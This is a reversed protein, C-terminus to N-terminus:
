IKQENNSNMLDIQKADEQCMVELEELRNTMNRVFFLMNRLGGDGLAYNIWLCVLRVNGVFYGVNNNIRDISIQTKQYKLQSYTMKVGSIACRGNQKHYLDVCHAIFEPRKRQNWSGYAKTSSCKCLYRIWDEPSKHKNQKLREREDKAVM